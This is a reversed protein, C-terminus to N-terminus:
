SRYWYEAMPVVIVIVDSAIVFTATGVAPTIIVTISFDFCNHFPLCDAHLQGRALPGNSLGLPKKAVYHGVGPM